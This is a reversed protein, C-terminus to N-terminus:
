RALRGKMMRTCRRDLCRISSRCIGFRKAIERQSLGEDYRLAYFRRLVGPLRSARSRLLSSLAPDRSSEPEDSEFSGLAVEARRRKLKLFDIAKHNATHFVWTRNVMLDPGAKWLALRLEQLLDSTDQRAVGYQQAVRSVVRTLYPSELWEGVTLTRVSIGLAPSSM